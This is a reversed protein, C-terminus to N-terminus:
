LCCWSGCSAHSQGGACGGYSLEGPERFFIIYIIYVFIGKVMQRSRKLTANYDFVFICIEKHTPTSMKLDSFNGGM